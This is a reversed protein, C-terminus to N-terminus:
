RYLQLSKFFTPWDNGPKFVLATRAGGLGSESMELFDIGYTKAKDFQEPTARCVVKRFSANLWVQLNIDDKWTKMAAAVAHGVALMAHGLDIEELVLIYMKYPASTKDPAPGDSTM